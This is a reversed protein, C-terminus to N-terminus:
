RARTVILPFLLGLTTRAQTVAWLQRTEFFDVIFYTPILQGQYQRSNKRNFDIIYSSTSEGKNGRTM